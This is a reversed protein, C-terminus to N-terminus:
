INMSQAGIESFSVKGIQFEAGCAVMYGFSVRKTLRAEDFHLSHICKHVRNSNPFM